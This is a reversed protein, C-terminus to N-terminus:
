SVITGVTEGRVARFLADPQEINLVLIPIRNEKCFAVATGDMVNLDLSLVEQYSLKEFRKADPHKLPDKDYVGDVKTGKILVDACMESARLAAATDTTFYPNGTGAAFIVVRRKELHREMRRKIYPEAISRMDIATMLRTELGHRELADQLFIGNIVTALMGMHDAAVRDMGEPASRTGRFINGGGVVLGILSGLGYVDKVQRALGDIVDHDFGSGRKGGFVEGSLKILVRRFRV